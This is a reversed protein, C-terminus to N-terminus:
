AYTKRIKIPQKRQKYKKETQALSWADGVLGGPCILVHKFNLDGILGFADLKDQCPLVQASLQGRQPQTGAAAAAALAIRGGALTQNVRMVQWVIQHESVSAPLVPLKVQGKTIAEGPQKVRCFQTGACVQAFAAGGCCGPAGIGLRGRDVTPRIKLAICHEVTGQDIKQLEAKQQDVVCWGLGVRHQRNCM